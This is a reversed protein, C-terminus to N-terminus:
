LSPDKLINIIAARIQPKARRFRELLFIEKDSLESKWKSSVVSEIYNQLVLIIGIVIATIGTAKNFTDMISLATSLLEGTTIDSNSLFYGIIIFCILVGLLGTGFLILAFKNMHLQGIKSQQLFRPLVVSRQKLAEAAL